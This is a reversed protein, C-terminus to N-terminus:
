HCDFTIIQSPMKDALQLNIAESLGIQGGEEYTTKIHSLDCASIWSQHWETKLKQHTIPHTYIKLVSISKLVKFLIPKWFNTLCSVLNWLMTIKCKFVNSLVLFFSRIRINASLMKKKIRGGGGEVGSRRTSGDGRLLQIQSRQTKFGPGAAHLASTSDVVRHFWM